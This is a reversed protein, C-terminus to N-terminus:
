AKPADGEKSTEKESEVVSTSGASGEGGVGTNTVKNALDKAIKDFLEGVLESAKKLEQGYEEEQLIKNKLLIRELVTVKVTLNVIQEQMAIIALTEQTKSNM